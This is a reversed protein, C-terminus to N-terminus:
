NQLQRYLAQVDFINPKEGNNSFDFLDPNNRIADSDLNNYLAQVDFIDFEGDGNIDNLKGNGTTDTAPKGDVVEVDPKEAGVIVINANITSSEEVIVTGTTGTKGNYTANIKYETGAEVETFVYSGESGTTTSRLKTLGDDTVESLTVNAGAIPEDTESTVDGTIFGTPQNASEVTVTTATGNTAGDNDVAVLAVDYTGAETYAHTTNETTTIKDINGDGDIDWQYEIIEGDPDFADTANLTVTQNVTVTTPDVSFNVKPRQNQGKVTVAVSTEAANGATDEATADMTLTASKADSPIEFTVSINATSQESSWAWETYSTDSGINNRFAAGDTAKEVITWNTPISSLQVTQSNEADIAVTATSGASGSDSSVSVSPGPSVPSIEISVTATDTGGNGDDVQYKFSDTGSSDSEPTYTFSNGNV